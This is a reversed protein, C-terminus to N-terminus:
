HADHIHVLDGQVFDDPSMFLGLAVVWGIGILSLFGLVRTGKSSTTHTM